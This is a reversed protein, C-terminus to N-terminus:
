RGLLEAVTGRECPSPRPVGKGRYNVESFSHFVHIDFIPNFKQAQQGTNEGSNDVIGLVEFALVVGIFVLFFVLGLPILFLLGRFM